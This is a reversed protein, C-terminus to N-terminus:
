GPIGVFRTLVVRVSPSPDWGAVSPQGAYLGGSNNGDTDRVMEFTVVDGATLDGVAEIDFPFEIDPNDVIAQTPNGVPTGNIKVRVYIQATSASGGRRGVILKARLTYEDSVLCTINGLADLDFFPTTQAPGLLIQTDIGLGTPEQDNFDYAALAEEVTVAVAAEGEVPRLPFGIGQTMDGLNTIAPDTGGFLKFFDAM